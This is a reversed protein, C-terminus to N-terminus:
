EGYGHRLLFERDIGGTGPDGEPRGPDKLLKEVYKGIMDTEINVLDGPRKRLLKTERGTQPIINVEFFNRECRNVTLSIGDVAISGKEIIYRALGTDIMVRILWSRGKPEVKQIKGTGDVHGLVLHGGMRDTLRVARELNVPDGIALSGLTSRLLTEQSVDVMFASTSLDTVTLCVGDVCISDGVRCENLLFPAKITLVMDRGTAHVGEVTGVGEVLGTFM